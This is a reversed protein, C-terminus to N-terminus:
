ISDSRWTQPSLLVCKFGGGLLDPRMKSTGHFRFQLKSLVPHGKKPRLWSMESSHQFSSFSEVDQSCVLGVKGLVRTM